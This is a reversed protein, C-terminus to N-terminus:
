IKMKTLTHHRSVKHRQLIIIMDSIEFASFIAAAFFFTFEFFKPEYIMFLFLFFFLVFAPSYLTLVWFLINYILM